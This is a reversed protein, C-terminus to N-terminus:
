KTPKYSESSVVRIRYNTLTNLEPLNYFMVTFPVESNPLVNVNARSKGYRNKMAKLLEVLTLTQLERKTLPNGCYLNVVQFPQNDKLLKAELSIFSRAGPYENRIMGQVVFLQGLHVNDIFYEKTEPMVVIHKNGPDIEKKVQSKQYVRMYSFLFVICLIGFIPITFWLLRRSFLPKPKPRLPSGLEAEDAPEDLVSIAPGNNTETYTPRHVVFVHQCKSCRVKIGQPPILDDDLKFKTGCQQCTVIM